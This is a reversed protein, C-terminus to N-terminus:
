TIIALIRVVLRLCPRSRSPEHLFGSHLLHSAVSSPCFGCLLGLSALRAPVHSCLGGTVGTRLRRYIRRKHVLSRAGRRAARRTDFFDAVVDDDARAARRASVGPTVACFDASTMTPGSPGFSRVDCGCPPASCVEARRQVRGPSANGAALAYGAMVIVAIFRGSRVRM